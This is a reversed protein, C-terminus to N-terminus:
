PSNVLAAELWPNGIGLLFQLSVNAPRACEGQNGLAFGNVIPKDFFTPNVGANNPEQHCITAVSGPVDNGNVNSGVSSAIPYSRCQKVRRLVMEPGSCAARYPEFSGHIIKAREAEILLVSIRNRFSNRSIIGVPNVRQYQLLIQM